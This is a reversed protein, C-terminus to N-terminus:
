QEICYVHFTTNCGRPPGMEAWLTASTASGVVGLVSSASSSWDMCRAGSAPATGTATFGTWVCASTNAAGDAREDIVTGHNAWRDRRREVVRRGLADRDRLARRAAGVLHAVGEYQLLARFSRGALATGAAEANCAVNVTAQDGLTALRAALLFVYRV